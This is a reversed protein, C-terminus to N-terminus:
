VTDLEDLVEDVVLEVDEPEDLAEAAPAPGLAASSPCTSSSSTASCAPSPPAPAVLTGARKLRPPAPYLVHRPNAQPQQATCSRAGVESFDGVM